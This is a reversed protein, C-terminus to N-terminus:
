GERLSRRASAIFARLLDAGFTGGQETTRREANM